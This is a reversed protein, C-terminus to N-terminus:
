DEKKKKSLALAGLGSAAMVGFWIASTSIVGADPVDDKASVDEYVVAYTSFRDTEFTITKTAEDFV